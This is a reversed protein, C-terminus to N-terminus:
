TKLEELSWSARPKFNLEDFLGLKMKEVGVWAIMAANDTCMKIPPAIIELSKNKAWFDLKEFIYKNAAVGGALIIKNPKKAVDGFDYHAFVNELRNILIQCVTKQFSACIDYKDQMSLKKHSEFHSFDSGTINEIQRRVASKLGSFSFDYIHKKEFDSDVLPRPFKFKNEDGLLAMKEVQPGGPYVLGLMQAVKDFAEGLADDITQGIRKYEGVNKAFLIQCHGGSVLLTLYPFEVNNTLRATLTHAELHNVAIFPKKLASALTKGTMLGVILGGILGPGATAAIADIDDFELNAEKLASLIIKDLVDIHARAAVEPVVGGYQEHLKIQSNIVNSLINKKDDVIAVATEDCSTEIGLIKM